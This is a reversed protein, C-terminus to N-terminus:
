KIPASGFLSILEKNQSIIKKKTKLLAIKAEEKLRKDAYSQEPGIPMKAAKEFYKEAANLENNALLYDAYYYNVDIGDPNIKLATELMERAKNNDGFAIPWGPTMYYLTGLTVYASGNMTHPDIELAKILLDRAQKISDLASIADLHEAYTAKIVAEWFLPEPREPFEAALLISQNLLQKYGAAKKPEPTNYFVASWDSELKTLSHKLNDAFCQSSLLLLAVFTTKKM